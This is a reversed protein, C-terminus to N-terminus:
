KKTKRVIPSHLKDYAYVHTKYLMRKIYYACKCFDHMRMRVTLLVRRSQWLLIEFEVVLTESHCMWISGCDDVFDRRMQLVIRRTM